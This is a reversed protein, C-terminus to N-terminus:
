AGLSLHTRQTGKPMLGGAQDGDGVADDQEVYLGDESPYSSESDELESPIDMLPVSQITDSTCQGGAGPGSNEQQQLAALFVHGSTSPLDPAQGDTGDNSSAGLALEQPGSSEM